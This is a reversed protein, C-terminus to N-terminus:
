LWQGERVGIRLEVENSEMMGRLASGWGGALMCTQVKMYPASVQVSGKQLNRVALMSACIALRAPLGPPGCRHCWHDHLWEAHWSLHLLPEARRPYLALAAVMDPAPDLSTDNVPDLGVDGLLRRHKIKGQRCARWASTM